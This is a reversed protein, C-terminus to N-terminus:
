GVGVPQQDAGVAAAGVAVPDAGPLDFEGAEGGLGAQRDGDAVEWGRGARCSRRPTWALGILRVSASSGTPTTVALRTGPAHEASNRSTVDLKRYISMVQSKVTHRSIHLREGIEPFSLHTPLLPLLRLEATTLTSAGPTDTRASKLRSRLDDADLALTGFDPGRRLLGDAERLMARAGAIDVIAM